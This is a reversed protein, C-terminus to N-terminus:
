FIQAAARGRREFSSLMLSVHIARQGLSRASGGAVGGNRRAPQGRDVRMDPLPRLQQFLVICLGLAFVDATSTGAILLDAM